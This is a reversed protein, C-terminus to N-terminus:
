GASPSASSLAPRHASSEMAPCSATLRPLFAATGVVTHKSISAVVMIAVVMIVEEGMTVEGMTVEPDVETLAPLPM